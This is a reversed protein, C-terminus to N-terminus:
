RYQPYRRMPARHYQRRFRSGTAPNPYQSVDNRFHALHLISVALLAAKDYAIPRGLRQALERNKGRLYYIGSFEREDWRTGTWHKGKAKSQDINHQNSAHIRAYLEQRLQERYGPETELRHMYYQYAEWTLAARAAHLNLKNAMEARAFVYNHSGDFYSKVLEAHEPLIRQLQYKNGKGRQIRVCLYGSEDVALDNGRLTAYERRRCGVAGAFVALRPSTEPRTDRRTASAKCGRGRTYEATRRKPITYKALPEGYFHCLGAAYTHITSPSKGQALLYDIYNQIYPTCEAVHRCARSRARGRKDIIDVKHNSRCYRLYNAAIKRYTKLTKETIPHNTVKKTYVKTKPNFDFRIRTTDMRHQTVEYIISGM